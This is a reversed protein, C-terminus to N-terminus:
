QSVSAHRGILILTAGGLCLLAGAWDWRDPMQGEVVWLWFLSAVIYIGGHAAYARGALSVDIRTLLAALGYIALMLITELLPEPRRHWRM